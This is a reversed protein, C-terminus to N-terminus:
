PKPSASPSAEAPEESKKKRSSHKAKEEQTMPGLKVSKAELSGDEKKWYSGRVEEDAVIDSMTAAAGQKTIKSEDTVKITRSGVTFTKATTDVSAIKGRYAIPRAPKEKEMPTASATASPTPSASKKGKAAANFSAGLVIAAICAATILPTKTKM